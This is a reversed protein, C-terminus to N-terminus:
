GHYRRGTGDAEILRKTQRLDANATFLGGRRTWLAYSLGHTAPPDQIIWPRLLAEDDSSLTRNAGQVRGRRLSIVNEESFEDSGFRYRRAWVMM